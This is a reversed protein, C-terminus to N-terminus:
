SVRRALAPQSDICSVYARRESRRLSLIENCSWGYAVALEHVERFLRRREQVIATLLFHQINFRHQQRAGCEPCRADLDIDILPAASELAEELESTDDQRAEPAIRRRLERAAEERPLLSVAIEDAGTPLRFELGRATRLPAPRSRPAVSEQLAVLSFSMDFPSRCAHCRSTNEIRDGFARRYVAALLRDRGSPTLSAADGPRITAGASDTLLRDLLEIATRTDACEIEREDFGNMERLFARGEGDAAGLTVPDLFM